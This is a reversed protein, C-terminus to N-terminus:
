PSVPPTSSAILVLPLEGFTSSAAFAARALAIVTTAKVPSPPPLSAGSASMRSAQRQARRREDLLRMDADIMVDAGLDLRADGCALGLLAVLRDCFSRRRHAPPLLTLPPTAPIRALLDKEYDTLAVKHAPDDALLRRFGADGYPAPVPRGNTEFVRFWVSEHIGESPDTRCIPRVFRGTALRWWWTLSDVLLGVAYPRTRDAEACIFQPDLDLLPSYQGGDLSRRTPCCTSPIAAASMPTRAPSGCRGCLRSSKPIQTPMGSRPGLHSAGSTSPSRRSPANSKRGLNTDHFRYASQCIHNDPIGLAGVTDWVGICRIAVAEAPVRDPFNALFETEEKDRELTPLRYYDWVEDFNIMDRKRLLGVHSILGAVSRATYAGRSFGFLFIEDGDLSNDVFFAYASKVNDSLGVGTCGSIWHDVINGTGVGPHYYVIQAVGEQSMPRVARALRVVNTLSAPNDARAWTGDLCAVLQKPM